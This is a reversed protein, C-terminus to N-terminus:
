DAAADLNIVAHSPKKFIAARETEFSELEGAIQSENWQMAAGIRM